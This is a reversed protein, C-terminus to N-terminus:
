YILAYSTAIILCTLSMILLVFVVLGLPYFLQNLSKIVKNKNM